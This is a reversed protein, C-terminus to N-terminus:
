ALSPARPNKFYPYTTKHVSKANTVLPRWYATKPFYNMSTDDKKNQQSKTLGERDVYLPAKKKLATLIRENLINKYWVSTKKRLITKSSILM